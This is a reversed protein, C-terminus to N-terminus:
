KQRSRRRLIAGLGAIAALVGASPEPVPRIELFPRLSADATASSAFLSAVYRDREGPVEIEVVDRQSLEMGDNSSPDTLWANVLDTVDFRIWTDVSSQIQTASLNDDVMPSNEWTVTQENWDQTVRRLDITVPNSTSPSEFASLAPLAYVNLWARDVESATLSVSDLPFQILSRTGHQRLPGEPTLAFPDTVASGLFNGFPVPPPTIQSLTDTDLNTTRPPTPIGFIGPVDFEYVFVDKSNAEDPQLTVALASSATVIWGILGMAVKLKWSSIM